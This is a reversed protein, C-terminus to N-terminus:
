AGTEPDDLWKAIPLGRHRLGRMKHRHPATFPATEVGEARLKDLACIQDARTSFGRRRLAHRISRPESSVKPSYPLGDTGAEIDAILAAIDEASAALAAPPCWPHLAPTTEGNDLSHLVKEFWHGDGLAGYNSKGRDIRAFHARSAASLGFSEAEDETMPLLTLMTRVAGITASAGRAIDPDGPKLPGKRTHHVLLVAINRAIALERFRAIVARLETNANEEATHLEALPDLILVSIGAADIIEALADLARTWVTRGLADQELLTALGQPGARVVKGAVDGPTVGFQRLAASLRRRQEPLDDEANFVLSRCPAVPRFDGHAVGLAAATAWTLALLSKAASPPGCLLTVTGRMLYGPAIWPRRPIDAELWSEADCWIPAPEAAAPAAPERPLGEPEPVPEAGLWDARDTM